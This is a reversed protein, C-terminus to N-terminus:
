GRRIIIPVVNSSSSSYSSSSSSGYCARRYGVKINTCKSLAVATYSPSSICAEYRLQCSNTFRRCLNSRGYRGCANTTSNYNCNNIVCIKAGSSSSYGSVSVALLVLMLASLSLTIRM